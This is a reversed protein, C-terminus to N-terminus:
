VINKLEFSYTEPLSPYEKSCISVSLLKLNSCFFPPRLATMEYLLTGLAWIDSKLNYPQRLLIEPSFYLPTGAVDHAMETDPDLVTSVGFRFLKCLGSKTM